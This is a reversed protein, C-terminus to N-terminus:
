RGPVDRRTPAKPAQAGLALADYDPFQGNGNGGRVRLGHDLNEGVGEARAGLSDGDRVDGAAIPDDHGDLFDAIQGARAADERQHIARLREPLPADIDLLNTAVSIRGTRVFPQERRRAVAQKIHALVALPVDPGRQGARMPVVVLRRGAKESQHLEAGGIGCQQDPQIRRQIKIQADARFFNLLAGDLRAFRKRAPNCCILPAEIEEGM